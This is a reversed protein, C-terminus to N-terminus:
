ENTRGKEYKLLSKNSLQWVMTLIVALNICAAIIYVPVYSGTTDYVRGTFIPAISVGLMMAFSMKGYLANYDKLGFVGQTTLPLVMAGNCCGFGVGLVILVLAPWHRCFIMSVLGILLSGTSFVFATRVGCRDFLRGVIIKGVALVGMCASSVGAAFTPSYGCDTLHPTVTQYYVNVPLSIAFACVLMIWFFPMRVAEKLMIGPRESLSKELPASADQEEEGYPRLELDSPKERVVFFMVPIIAAAMIAASVRYTVRWGYRLILRAIVVNMIMATVGSGMSATGMALGKDKKFWNAVIYTFPMNGFIFLPIALFVSILYFSQINQALSYSFYLAPMLLSFFCMTKRMDIRRSISGWTYSLAAPILSLLTLNINMAERTFGMDACVPKLYQSFCNNILGMSVGMSLFGSLVIYWGYFIKKKPKSVHDQTQEM